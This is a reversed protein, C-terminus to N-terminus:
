CLLTGFNMAHLRLSTSFAKLIAIAPASSVHTSRKRCGRHCPPHHQIADHRLRNSSANLRGGGSSIQSQCKLVLLSQCTNKFVKSQIGNAIEEFYDLFFVQSFQELTYQAEILAAGASSHSVGCPL